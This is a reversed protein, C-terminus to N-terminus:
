TNITQCGLTMFTMNKLCESEFPLCLAVFKLGWNLKTWFHYPWLFYIFDYKTMKTMFTMNKPFLSCKTNKLDYKLTKAWVIWKEPTFKM